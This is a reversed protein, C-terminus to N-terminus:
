GTKLAERKLVLENGQIVFKLKTDSSWGLTNVVEKPIIVIHKYHEKGKYKYALAKQIKM